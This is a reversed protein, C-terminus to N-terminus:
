HVHQDPRQNTSTSGSATVLKRCSRVARRRLRLGVGERRGVVAPQYRCQSHQTLVGMQVKVDELRLGM